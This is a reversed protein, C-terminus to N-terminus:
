KETSPEVVFRESLKKNPFYHITCVTKSLVLDIVKRELECLEEYVEKCLPLNFYTPGKLLQNKPVYRDEMFEGTSFFLIEIPEVKHLIVKVVVKGDIFSKQSSDGSFYGTNTFFLLVKGQKTPYHIYTYKM